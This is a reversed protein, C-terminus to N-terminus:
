LIIEELKGIKVLIDQRLECLSFWEFFDMEDGLIGAEFQQIFQNSDLQYTQEFKKIDQDYITLKQRHRTLIINLLQGIIRDLETRDSCNESLLELKELTNM